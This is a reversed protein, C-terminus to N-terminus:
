PSTTKPVHATVHSEHILFFHVIVLPLLMNYLRLNLLNRNKNLNLLIFGYVLNLLIRCFLSIRNCALRQDIDLLRLMGTMKCSDVKRCVAKLLSKTLM